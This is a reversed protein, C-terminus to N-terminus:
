CTHKALLLLNGGPMMIKEPALNLFANQFLSGGRSKLEQGDLEPQTEERYIYM